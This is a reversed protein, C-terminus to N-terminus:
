QLSGFLCWDRDSLVYDIVARPLNQKMTYISNNTIKVCGFIKVSEIFFCGKWLYELALDTLETCWSLHITELLACNTAIHHLAEDTLKTCRSLNLDQL